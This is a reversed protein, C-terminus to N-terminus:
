AAHTWGRLGLTQSLVLIGPSGSVRRCVTCLTLVSLFQKWHRLCPAGSFSRTGHSVVPFFFLSPHSQPPLVTPRPIPSPVGALIPATSLTSPISKLPTPVAQLM